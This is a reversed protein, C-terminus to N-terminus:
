VTYRVIYNTGLNGNQIQRKLSINMCYDAPPVLSLTKDAEVDM